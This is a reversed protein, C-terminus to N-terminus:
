IPGDWHRQEVFDQANFLPRVKVFDKIEQLSESNLINSGNKSRFIVIGGLPHDNLNLPNYFDGSGDPFLAKVKERDSRSRSNMPSYLAEINNESDRFLFFGSTLAACVLVPVIIFAAPYRAVVNGYRGFAESIRRSVCHFLDSCGM